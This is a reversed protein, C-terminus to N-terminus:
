RPQPPPREHGAGAEILLRLAEAYDKSQDSGGSSGGWAAAHLADLSDACAGHELLWRIAELRANNASWSLVSRYWNAHDANVDAGLKVLRAMLNLKGDNAAYHLATSDKIFPTGREDPGPWTLTALEPHQNLIEIAEDERSQDYKTALLRYFPSQEDYQM